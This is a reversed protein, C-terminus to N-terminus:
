KSPNGLCLATSQTAEGISIEEEGEQLSFDLILTNVPDTEGSAERRATCM